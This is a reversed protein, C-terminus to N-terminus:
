FLFTRIDKFSPRSAADTIGKKEGEEEEEEEERRSV